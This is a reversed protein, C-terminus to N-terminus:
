AELPEGRLIGTLVPLLDALTDPIFFQKIDQTIIRETRNLVGFRWLDGVSVAGYLLTEGPEAWKDLAAMEATLQVFGREMDANKAKVVLLRTETLLLYDLSGRLTQSINIPYESRLRANTQRAVEVLIPAILYERRAMESTFSALRVTDALRAYLEPEWPLPELSRPLTLTEKRFGYGLSKAVEEIPVNLKFYDHFGSVSEPLIFQYAM